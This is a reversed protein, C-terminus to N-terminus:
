GQSLDGKLLYKISVGMEQFLVQKPDRNQKPKQEM